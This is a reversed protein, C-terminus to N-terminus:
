GRKAVYRSAESVARALGMRVAYYGVDTGEEAKRTGLAFVQVCALQAEPDALDEGESSAIAAISRLILVTTVPLEVILGPLGLLGGVGGLLGATNRHLKKAPFTQEPKLTRLAVRLAKRIAKETARSIIEHAFGPLRKLAWEMPVNVIDTMRAAWSPNELLRVARELRDFDRTEM